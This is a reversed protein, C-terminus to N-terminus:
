KEAVKLLQAETTKESVAIRHWESLEKGDVVEEFFKENGM